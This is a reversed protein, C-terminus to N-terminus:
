AWVIRFFKDKLLFRNVHRVKVGSKILSELLHGAYQQAMRSFFAEAEELYIDHSRWDIIVYIGNAIAADIVTKIHTESKDPIELYGGDPEVGIAARIVTIHWNRSLYAVVSPNYYQPWWNHWGLSVGKLATKRDNSDIIHAGEVRLQGHKDVPRDM